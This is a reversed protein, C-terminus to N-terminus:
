LSLAPNAVTYQVTNHAVVTSQTLTRLKRSLVFYSIAALIWYVPLTTFPMWSNHDCYFNTKVGDYKCSQHGRCCVSKVSNGCCIQDRKCCGRPFTENLFCKSFQGEYKECVGQKEDGEEDEEEEEGEVAEDLLDSKTPAIETTRAVDTTSDTGYSGDPSHSSHFDSHLKSSSTSTSKSTPSSTSTSTSPSHLYKTYHYYTNSQTFYPTQSRSTNNM